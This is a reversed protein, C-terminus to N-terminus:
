ELPELKLEVRRNQERGSAASNSAIPYRFGYGVAHVRGSAVGRSVLYDKVSGARQESLTQNLQASGTSDTHGSVEIATKKFEKLVNAVSDLVPLFDSRIQYDGTAFTINGPMILSLEDGNRSVQVGTGQLSARLKKEQQDMYHGVGGGIAAGAAAGTLIGKDRDKKSSTAAGLIAGAIAGGAAGKTASSTKKEGTYADQTTCGTALVVFIPALVILLMKKM